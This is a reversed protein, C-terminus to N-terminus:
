IALFVLVLGVLQNFFFFFFFCLFFETQKILSKQRLSFIAQLSAQCTKWVPHPVKPTVPVLPFLRYVPCLISFSIQKFTHCYFSWCDYSQILNYLYIYLMGRLKYIDNQFFFYIYVPPCISNFLAPRLFYYVMKFSDRTLSLCPCFCCFWGFFFSLFFTLPLRDFWTWNDHTQREVLQYEEIIIRRRKWKYEKM